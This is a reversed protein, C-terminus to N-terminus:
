TNIVRYKRTPLRANDIGGTSVHGSRQDHMQGLATYAFENRTANFMRLVIRLMHIAGLFTEHCRSEGSLNRADM